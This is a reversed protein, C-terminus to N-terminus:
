EFLNAAAENIKLIFNDVSSRITFKKKITERARRGMDRCAIRDSSLFRVAEELEEIHYSSIIIGDSGDTIAEDVGGVPVSIVPISFAMAELMAYPFAEFRSLIMLAHARQYYSTPDNVFGVWEVRDAIGNEEAWRQWEERKPGDGVLILHVGELRKLLKLGMIQNKLDNISGVMLLTFPDTSSKTGTLKPLEVGNHITHIKGPAYSDSISKSSVRIVVDIRHLLVKVLIKRILTKIHLERGFNIDSHLIFVRLHAQRRRWARFYLARYGNLLEVKLSKPRNKGSARVIRQPTGHIEVSHCRRELELALIELYREQGGFVPSFNYAILYM